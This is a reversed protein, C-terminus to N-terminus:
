QVAYNKRSIYIRSIFNDQIRIQRKRTQTVSKTEWGKRIRYLRVEGGQVLDGNADVYGSVMGNSYISGSGHLLNGGTYGGVLVGDLYINAATGRPYIGGSNGSPTHASYADYKQWYGFNGINILSYAPADGALKPAFRFNNWAQNEPLEKAFMGSVLLTGIVMYKLYKM